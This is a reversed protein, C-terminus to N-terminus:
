LLLVAEVSELPLVIRSGTPESGGAMGPGGWFSADEREGVESAGSQVDAQRKTGILRRSRKKGSAAKFAPNSKQNVTSGNLVISTKSCSTLIGTHRAGDNMMVSVARGRLPRLHEQQPPFISELM